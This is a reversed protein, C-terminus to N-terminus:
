GNNAMRSIEFVNMCRLKMFRGLPWLLTCCTFRVPPCSTMLTVLRGFFQELWILWVHNSATQSSSALANPTEFRNSGASVMFMGSGEAMECPAWKRGMQLGDNSIQMWKQAWSSHHSKSSPAKPEKGDQLRKKPGRGERLSRRWSPGVGPHPIWWHRRPVGLAGPVAPVLAALPEVLAEWGLTGWVVLSATWAAPTRLPWSVQLIKSLVKKHTHPSPRHYITIPINPLTKSWNGKSDTQRTTPWWTLFLAWKARRYLAKVDVGAPPPTPLLHLMSSDQLPPRTFCLMSPNRWFRQQRRIQFQLSVLPKAHNLLLISQVHGFQPLRIRWKQVFNLWNQMDWICMNYLWTIQPPDGLILCVWKSRDSRGPSTSFMPPALNHRGVTRPVTREETTELVNIKM